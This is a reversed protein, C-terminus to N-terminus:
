AFLRTRSGANMIRLPSLRWTGLSHIIRCLPRTQLFIYLINEFSKPFVLPNITPTKVIFRFIVVTTGIRKRKHAFCELPCPFHIRILRQSSRICAQHRVIIPGIQRYPSEQRLITVDHREVTIVRNCGQHIFVDVRKLLHIARDNTCFTDSTRRISQKIHISYASFLIDSHQTKTQKVALHLTLEVPIALLTCLFRLYPKM